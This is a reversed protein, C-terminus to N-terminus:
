LGPLRQEVQPRPPAADRREWVVYAAWPVAGDWLPHKAWMSRAADSTTVIGRREASYPMVAVLEYDRDILERLGTKLIQPTEPSELLSTEVFTAVIFRPPAARLETLTEQQRAAAAPLAMHLPYVYIYRSASRAGAYFLVEPESGFVFIVPRADSREALWAGLVPAEPFPNIGYIRNMKAEPKGPGFYWWGHAVANAILVLSAAPALWARHRLAEPLLRVIAVLGVAALLALPPAAIVFYHQRFFGGAAVAPVSSLLWGWAWALHRRERTRDVNSSRLALLSAMAALYVPGLPVLSTGIGLAFYAPYHSLPVSQSYALNNVVVADFFETWSGRAAFYFAIPVTLLAFGAAAALVPGISRRALMAVTAIEFAAVPLTVPKTAFALGGLLGTVLAPVLWHDRRAQFSAVAGWAIPLIALQETNVANGLWSPESTLLLLLLAAAIGAAPSFLRRGLLALALMAALVVAQAGWRIAAPHGGGAALALAYFAFIAPPKQDFVDRYPVDGAVWREAIYAYGGEDREFPLDAVSWRLAGALVVIGLVILWSGARRGVGEEQAV